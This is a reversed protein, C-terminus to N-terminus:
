NQTQTMLLNFCVYFLVSGTSHECHRMKFTKCIYTYFPVTRGGLGVSLFVGGQKLVMSTFFWQSHNGICHIEFLSFLHDSISRLIVEIMAVHPSVLIESWRSGTEIAKVLM